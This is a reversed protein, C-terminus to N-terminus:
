YCIDSTEAIVLEDLKKILLQFKNELIYIQGQSSKLLELSSLGSLNIINKASASIFNVKNQLDFLNDQLKEKINISFDEMEKLKKSISLAIKESKQQLELWDNQMPKNILAKTHEIKANIRLNSTTQLDWALNLKSMLFIIWKHVDFHYWKHGNRYDRPFAHHFNHWNEGLLFPAFWWIDRSTNSRTYKRTGTFHCLSNVCFTAHQQFSRGLNIFIYGAFAGYINGYLFYGVLVPPVINMFSVLKWYNKMQWKLLKNKGLKTAVAKNIKVNERPNYFLLWGIHAWIFGKIKNKFRLPSHPDEAKDTYRHHYYHNSTWIIVAGQCTGSSLLMLIAEIFKNTKFAGHSWLRHIAVGATINCVYYGFVGLWFETWGYPFSMGYIVALLVLILPNIILAFFNIFDLKYGKIM